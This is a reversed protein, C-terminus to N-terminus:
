VKVLGKACYGPSAGTNAQQREAASSQGRYKLPLQAATDIGSDCHLIITPTQSHPSFGRLGRVPYELWTAHANGLDGPLRKNRRATERPQAIIYNTLSPSCRSVPPELSVATQLIGTWPLLNGLWRSSTPAASSICQYWSNRASLM